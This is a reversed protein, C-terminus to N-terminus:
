CSKRSALQNCWANILPRPMRVLTLKSQVFIQAPSNVM